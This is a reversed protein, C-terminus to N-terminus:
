LLSLRYCVCGMVVKGTALETRLLTLGYLSLGYFLKRVQNTHILSDLSGEFSLRCANSSWNKLHILSCLSMFHCLIMMNQYISDIPLRVFDSFCQLFLMFESFLYFFLM